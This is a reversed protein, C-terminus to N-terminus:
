RSVVLKTVASRGAADLRALYVGPAVPRGSLDRGDWVAAHRGAELRGDVLRAVRRGRGDFVSLRVHGPQKLEMRFETGSRTPNPGWASLMSGAPAGDEAVAITSGVYFRHNRSLGQYTVQFRWWGQAYIPPLTFFWYWYSAAYHPVSIGHSWNAVVNNAADFVAYDSVQGMLQDRYYAAFYATEGPLFFLEDHLAEQGPCPPFVPPASHTLIQNIASDYYPRQADWWSTMTTPNCPGVYPDILNNGADYIELHLHPATSNGSSGVLGLYEGKQVTEGVLKPTPSGSKMHGYWAVSGDAHLIYVANWNAGGFGCNRDYHGDDKQVIQGAAAAVIQVHDNDMKYWPFPWLFYDIGRHNYGSALDYTRTGCGYDQLVSPYGPNHDVFNSIGHYGPHTLAPHQRLPWDLGVAAPTIEALTGLQELVKVSAGIRSQIDARQEDSLCPVSGDFPYEGFGGLHPEVAHVRGAAAASACLVVLLIRRIRTM